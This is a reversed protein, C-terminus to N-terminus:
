TSRLKWTKNISSSSMGSTTYLYLPIYPPNSTPSSPNFTIEGRSPPPCSTKLKLEPPHLKIKLGVKSIKSGGGRWIIITCDRICKPLLLASLFHPFHMEHKGRCKKRARNNGAHKVVSCLVTSAEKNTLYNLELRFNRMVPWSFGLLIKVNLVFM